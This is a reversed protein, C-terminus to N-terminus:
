PRLFHEAAPLLFYDTLRKIKQQRLSEHVRMPRVNLREPFRRFDRAQHALPPFDKGASPRCRTEQPLKSRWVPDPHPVSM